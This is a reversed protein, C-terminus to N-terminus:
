PAISGTDAASRTADDIALAMGAIVSSLATVLSESVAAASYVALVGVVRDAVLLPYGAYVRIRHQELSSPASQQWAPEGAVIQRPRRDRAAPGVLREISRGGPGPEAVALDPGAAALLELAATKECWGWVQLAAVDLHTIAEEAVDGLRERLSRNAILYLGAAATFAALASRESVDRGVMSIASEDPVARANWELWLYRGDAHRCRTAFELTSEGRRLRDFARQTEGRDDPHVWDVLPRGKLDAATRGLRRPVNDNFRRLVGDFGATCFLDASLDFFRVLEQEARRRGSELHETLAAVIETAGAPRDDPDAALCRKALRVVAAPGGCADLRDIAGATDADVAMAWTAAPNQGVFPPSGSLIECLIGGLGFVDARTDVRGIEGRAQEPALYAPTGFVTGSATLHSRTQGSGAASPRTVEADPLPEEPLALVKALGWDMVTVVGHRGVMINSPKLDRHIVGHEHSYAVAQCIQLFVALLGPLDNDPDTRAKLRQKLTSGSLLQMVIFAQGAASVDFEHIEVIGPHQLRSAIRAERFFWAVAAPRLRGPDDLLKIAVSRQLQADWGEFVVGMGGRGLERGIRYRHDSSASETAAAAARPRGLLNRLGDSVRADGLPRWGPGTGDGSTGDDKLLTVCDRAAQRLRSADDPMPITQSDDMAAAEIGGGDM